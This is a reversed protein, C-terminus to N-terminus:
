SQRWICRLGADIAYQHVSDVENKTVSRDPLGSDKVLPMYQDMIHVPVDRNIRAIDAFVERADEAQGPMVLYRVFVGTQKDENYVGLRHIARFLFTLVEETYRRAKSLRESLGSSFKVDLCVITALDLARTNVHYGHTNWIIPVDYGTYDRQGSIGTLIQRTYLDPNVLDIAQAGGDILARYLPALDMCHIKGGLSFVYEKDSCFSCQMWCGRFFIAGVPSPLQPEEGYHIGASYVPVYDEGVTEKGTQRLVQPVEYGEKSLDLKAAAEWRPDDQPFAEMVHPYLRDIQFSDEGQVIRAKGSWWRLCDGLTM